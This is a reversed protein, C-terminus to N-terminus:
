GRVRARARARAGVRVRVVALYTLYASRSTFAESGEGGSLM